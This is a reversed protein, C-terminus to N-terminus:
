PAPVPQPDLPISYTIIDESSFAIIEIELDEYKEM